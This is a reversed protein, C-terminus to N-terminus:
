FSKWSLFGPCYYPEVGEMAKEWPGSDKNAQYGTDQITEYIEIKKNIEFSFTFGTGTIEYQSSASNKWM